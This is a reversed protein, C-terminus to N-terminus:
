LKGRFLYSFTIATSMAPAIAAAAIMKRMRFNPRMVRISANSLHISTPVVM